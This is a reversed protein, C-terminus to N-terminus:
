ANRYRYRAQLLSLIGPIGFLLAFPIRDSPAFPGPWFLILLMLVVGVTGVLALGVMRLDLGSAVDSM